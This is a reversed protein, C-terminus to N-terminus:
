AKEIWKNICRSSGESAGDSYRHSARLGASSSKLEVDAGDSEDDDDNDDDDDDDDADDNDNFM